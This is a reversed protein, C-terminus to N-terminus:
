TDKTVYVFIALKLSLIHINYELGTPFAVTNQIVYWELICKKKSLIDHIEFNM